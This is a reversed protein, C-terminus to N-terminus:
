LGFRTKTANYNQLVEQSSLARNYVSVQSIKGNFLNYDRGTNGGLLSQQPLPYYSAVSTTPSLSAMDYLLFNTATNPDGGLYSLSINTWKNLYSNASVDNKRRVSAQSGYTIGLYGINYSFAIEFPNALNTRLTIFEPYERTYSTLNVWASINWAQSMNLTINGLDVYDNVSDFVISGGSGSNFTPGNVLTGNNGGRSLDNWTTSGSVISKSNAADLYLVLGDTVVKPSFNFAM